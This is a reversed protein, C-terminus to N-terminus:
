KVEKMIEKVIAWYENFKNRKADDFGYTTFNLEKLECEQM